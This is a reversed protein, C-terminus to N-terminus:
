KNNYKNMAFDPSKKLFDILAGELSEFLSNIKVRELLSFKKLVFAARDSVRQPGIGIRLRYFDKSKIHDIVSQVGNHGGSSKGFSFKFSGFDLNIEDYVLLLKKSDKIDFYKFLAKVAEGSLNMYTDPVAFAVVSEGLQLFALESKAMKEKKFIIGQRSIFHRLFDAGVNHRTGIYKNEPNGLGVVLYDVQM